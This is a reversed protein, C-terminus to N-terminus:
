KVEIMLLQEGAETYEVSQIVTHEKEYEAVVKDIDRVGNYCAKFPPTNDKLFQIAENTM